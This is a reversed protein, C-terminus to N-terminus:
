KPRIWNAQANYQYRRSSRMVRRSAFWFGVHANCWNESLKKAVSQKLENAVKLLAAADRLTWKGPEFHQHILTPAGDRIEVTERVQAYPSRDLIERAKELARDALAYRKLLDREIRKALIRRAADMAQTHQQEDWAAARSAWNFRKAWERIRGTAGRKRGTPAGDAGPYVLAGARDLSRAPGLHLYQLFAAHARAGEGLQREWPATTEYSLPPMDSLPPM